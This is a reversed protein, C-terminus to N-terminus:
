VSSNEEVTNGAGDGCRLCCYLLDSIILFDRFNLMHIFCLFVSSLLSEDIKRLEDSMKKRYDGFTLKMLLRKKPAPTSPNELMRMVRVAEAAAALMIVHKIQIKDYLTM